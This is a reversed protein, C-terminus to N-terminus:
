SLAFGRASTAIHASTEWLDFTEAAHAVEAVTRGPSDSTLLAALFSKNPGNQTIAIATAMAVKEFRMRRAKRM